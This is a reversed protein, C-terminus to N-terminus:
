KTHSLDPLTHTNKHAQIHKVAYEDQTTGITPSTEYTKCLAGDRCFAVAEFALIWFGRRNWSGAVRGKTSIVGTPEYICSNTNASVIM